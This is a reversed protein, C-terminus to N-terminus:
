AGHCFFGPNSGTCREGPIRAPLHFRFDAALLDPLPGRAGEANEGNPRRQWNRLLPDRELAYDRVSRPEARARYRRGAERAPM